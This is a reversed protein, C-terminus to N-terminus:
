RGPPRAQGTRQSGGSNLYRDLAQDYASGVLSGRMQGTPQWNPDMQLDQLDSAEVLPTAPTTVASALGPSQVRPQAQPTAPRSVVQSRMAQSQQPAYHYNTLAQSVAGGLQTIMQGMRNNLQRQDFSQHQQSFPTGYAANAGRGQGRGGAAPRTGMLPPAALGMVRRMDQQTSQLHLFSAGDPARSLPGVGSIMSTIISDANPVHHAQYNSSAASSQLTHPTPPWYSVNPQVRRSSNHSPVALAQVAVPERRVNRPVPPRAVESALLSDIRPQMQMMTPYPGQSFQQMAFTSNSIQFPSATDTTVPQAQLIDRPLISELTGYSSPVPGGASSLLPNQGSTSTGTSCRNHGGVHLDESQASTSIPLDLLYDAVSLDQSNLLPKMDESTSASRMPLDGDDDRNILDIVDSPTADTEVADGNQQVTHAAHRDSKEDHVSDVKWSGDPFLLVNIIDDGMEQLVKAMKQDIRLDLFNSPTNCCPCRWNPKRLNMDMYNDYDFCQYHKCLRGKIPTKIRRFSIPCKLSVKSPGELVDSDPVDITVPQAYDDLKPADFSTLSNVFAVAIIYSANFYGVAQLINAGFKLMKTIDTPFQPGTEQSVNTRKDVGKGNVLFSVHPPNTICSSVGLNEKQVVILSIKENKPLNRHIFFDAMLIDYGAKAELSIILRDFKLKPYYRPMVTSIIELVTSDNPPESVPTCFNGSLKCSIILVMVSSQISPERRLQYVKRLIDPVEPAMKPVDGGSLAYDIGRAFAYVLHSLEAPPLAAAGGRFHGRIREGIARLRQANMEVAKQLQERAQQQQQMQQQQAPAPATPPLSAAIGAM